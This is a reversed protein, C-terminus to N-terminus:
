LYTALLGGVALIAALAMVLAIVGTAIGQRGNSWGDVSM